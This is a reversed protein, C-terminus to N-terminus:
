GLKLEWKQVIYRVCKIATTAECAEEEAAAEAVPENGVVRTVAFGLAMVVEANADTMEEPPEAMAVDMKPDVVIKAPAELATPDPVEAMPEPVDANPEAIEVEAMTETTEDPPLAIAVDIRPEVVM